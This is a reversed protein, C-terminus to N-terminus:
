PITRNSLMLELVLLVLSVAILWWWAHREDVLRADIVPQSTKSTANATPEPKAPEKSVLSAFDAPTPWPSLDSESTELNIAYWRKRVGDDYEYIGPAEPVVFGDVTSAGVAMPSVVPRWTGKGPLALTEGVRGSDPAVLKNEALWFVAQHVLPLYAASLPLDSDERTAGFGTILIRGLGTSVEAIAVSRDPWRALPEVSPGGIAWGRRFAPELLPALSQGEFAAFLPHELALDRLKLGGASARVPALDIGRKKLWATQEPSGDCILWASGGALLFEDLAREANGSFPASGRLLAVSSIPWPQGSFVMADIQFHTLKGGQAANLALALYDVTGTSSGPAMMARRDDGAPLVAYAVDDVTLEDPDLEARIIQTGSPDTVAYAARVVQPIRGGIRCTVKGLQEDNRYFTLTREFIESAYGLVVAELELENKANRFANVSTIAAQRDPNKAMPATLLKVGPPFQRDFRVDSWGLRQQDGALIIEKQRTSTTSLATAALELGARYHTTSYAKPFQSLARLGADIDASLPAIWQPSPHLMLVGLEDPPRLSELGPKLWAEVAAIRGAAQMSYSNDVVVVIARSTASHELPWFPRSFALAVLLIFLCRLLLTLWRWLSHRRSDRLASGGLFQLSPFPIRIRSQLRLLHMVIPLGVLAAAGLFVPLLLNM